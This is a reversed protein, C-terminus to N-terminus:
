VDRLELAVADRTEWGEITPVIARAINARRGLLGLKVLKQVHYKSSNKGNLGSAAALEDYTPPYGVQEIQDCLALLVRATRSTPKFPLCDCDM